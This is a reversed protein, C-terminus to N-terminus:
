PPAAGIAKLSKSLKTGAEMLGTKEEGPNQNGRLVEELDSLERRLTTVV